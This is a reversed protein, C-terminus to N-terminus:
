PVNSASDCDSRATDIGDGGDCADNPDNRVADGQLEDDGSGGRLQDAQNGGNLLDDGSGGFIADGVGGGSLEDDGSGGTLIDRGSEGCMFDDGGLGHIQDAGRGGVIVDSGNTGYIVDTGSTGVITAKRDLCMRAGAGASSGVVLLGSLIIALVIGTVLIVRARMKRARGM